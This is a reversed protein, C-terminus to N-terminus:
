AVINATQDAVTGTASITGTLRSTVQGVVDYFTGGTFNGAGIHITVGTGIDGTVVPYSFTHITGAANSSAYAAARSVGGVTIPYTPIGAIKVAENTTVTFSIVDGNSVDYPGTTTYATLTFTPLGAVDTRRTSLGKSAYEVEVLTRSGIVKSRTVGSDTARINFGGTNVGIGGVTGATIAAVAWAATSTGGVVSADEAIPGGVHIVKLTRTTATWKLVKASFGGVTTVTEGPTYTGSGGAKFTITAVMEYPFQNATNKLQSM